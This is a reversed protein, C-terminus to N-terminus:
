WLKGRPTGSAVVLENSENFSGNLNRANSWYASRIRALDEDIGNEGALNDANRAFSFARELENTVIKKISKTNYCVLSAAPPVSLFDHVIARNKGTSTRLVRGRRQVWEREITSSAVIFAERTSPIDVGEDLVKKALLVQINGKDFSEFLSILKKPQRTTAETVQGWKIGLDTLLASIKEYQAPNKASAYILARDLQDPERHILVEKLLDIKSEATEIIKRRQLLLQQLGTAEDNEGKSNMAAGIRRTLHEFRELEDVTLTCVHVFYSYPVLCFGIAQDLGFEYVKPGFYSFIEETGDPDYQREPTASLALRREFFEPKNSVFSDAGLSHAEDSILLTAINGSSDRVKTAVTQQFSTTCLLRNTVVVVQTGGGRLLRFMRTLEHTKNRSLTPTLAEIGFKKVEDCWQSILPVSPASIVVLLPKGKLRDQARTACILATITKGAGTAMSIVGREPAEGGEWNRVAESQHAYDGEGWKLSDPIRLQPVSRRPTQKARGPNYDTPQPATEPATKIIGEAIGDPLSVVKQIGPSNGQAWDNLMECGSKVKTASGTLWSVDVDLHEVGTSVGHGTANGSGRALLQDKGDDFLWLKPHYNSDPTPVAIRLLLMETAVMWSLCDLAHIGMRGACARGNIFVDAVLEAAEEESMQVGQEIACRVRPFIAPAVTFQVPKSDERNLYDALGPALQSIWGATFWGFAGTVSSAERFSPILINSDVRDEPLRFLGPKLTQQERLM